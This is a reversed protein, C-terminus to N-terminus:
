RAATTIAGPRAPLPSRPGTVGGDISIQATENSALAATLSGNVVVPSVSTIFDSASLGTDAQLSDINIGMAPASLDVTITHNSSGTNGIANSVSANIVYANGDALATVDASGLTYSWSGGTQVTTTYTKGNLTLTLTQGIPATTTGSIVLSSGHEAANVM